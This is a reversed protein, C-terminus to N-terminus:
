KGQVVDVDLFCDKAVGANEIVKLEVLQKALADWRESTMVGLKAAKTEATEGKKKEPEKAEAGPDETGILQM